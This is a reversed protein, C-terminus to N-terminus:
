ENVKFDLANAHTEYHFFLAGNKRYYFGISFMCSNFGIIKFNFGNLNACYEKCRNFAYYKRASPKEYCDYLDFLASREHAQIINLQRKNM